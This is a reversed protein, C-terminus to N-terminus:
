ERRFPGPGRLIRTLLELARETLATVRGRAVHLEVEYSEMQARLKDNEQRTALHSKRQARDDGEVSRERLIKELEDAHKKLEQYRTELVAPALARQLAQELNTASPALGGEDYRVALMAEQAGNLSVEDRTTTRAILHWGKGELHEWPSHGGLLSELQNELQQCRAMLETRGASSPKVLDCKDAHQIKKTVEPAIPEPDDVTTTAERGCRLCIAACAASDDETLHLAVVYCRGDDGVHIKLHM